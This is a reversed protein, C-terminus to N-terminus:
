ILANIVREVIISMAMLENRILRYKGAQTNTPNKEDRQAEEGFVCTELATIKNKLQSVADILSIEGPEESPAKMYDMIKM